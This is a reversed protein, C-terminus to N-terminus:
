AAVRADWIQGKPRGFFEALGFCLRERPIVGEDEYRRLSKVCPIRDPRIGAKRMERPLEQRTLLREERLERLLRGAELDRHGKSARFTGATPM